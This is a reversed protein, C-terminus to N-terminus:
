IGLVKNVAERMGAAFIRATCSAWRILTSSPILSPTRSLTPFSRTCPISRLRTTPCSITPLPPVGLSTAVPIPFLPALTQPCRMLRRSPLRRRTGEGLLQRRSLPRRRLIGAPLRRRTGEGPPGGRAHGQIQRQIGRPRRRLRGAPPGCGRQRM